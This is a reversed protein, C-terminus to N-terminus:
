LVAPGGNNNGTYCLRGRSHGNGDGSGVRCVRVVSHFSAARQPIRM